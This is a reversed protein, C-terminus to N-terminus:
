LFYFSDETVYYSVFTMRKREPRGMNHLARFVHVECVDEYSVSQDELCVMKCACSINNKCSMLRVNFWIQSTCNERVHGLTQKGYHLLWSKPTYLPASDPMMCVAFGLFLMRM